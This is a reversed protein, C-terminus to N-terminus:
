SSTPGSTSASRATPSSTVYETLEWRSNKWTFYTYSQTFGIKALERMVARRTFAEALFVVRPRGRPGGRDAVGLVRVAQHAPQRRPLGQRRAEVWHLVVDRLAQWLAEGTRALGLQRQLHGPLAQAPERRVQAHRRPPAPVVGPAGEAVPPRRSRQLAFDLAIDIGHEARARRPADFDELHRARPPRRRPRGGRRRDGVPSGPDDPGAALANNRGKRNNRGIPHIPPFYLSTSASSPSSAAAAGRRRRLRGLLAPLARVLLRLPGAVRDVDLTLPQELTARRPARRRARHRRVARPRARRRAQGRRADPDELIELAEEIAPAAQRARRALLVVGESLEGALDHPRRRGQAAARRALDRLRRELGRDHVGLARDRRGDFAGGLARRRPARRAACRRRSGARSARRGTACSPACSTTATASSTPPSTSATASPASRRTAAATWSPRRTSSASARRLNAQTNAHPCRPRPTDRSQRMSSGMSM